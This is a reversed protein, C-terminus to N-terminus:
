KDAHHRASTEIESLSRPMLVNSDHPARARRRSQHVARARAIPFLPHEARPRRGIRAHRWPHHNPKERIRTTDVAYLVAGSLPMEGTRDRGAVPEDQRPGPHDHEVRSGRPRAARRNVRRDVAVGRGAIRIVRGSPAPRRPSRERMPQGISREPRGSPSIPYQVIVARRGHQVVGHFRSGDALYEARLASRSAPDDTWISSAM